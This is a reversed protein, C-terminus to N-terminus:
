MRKQVNMVLRVRVATPQTALLIAAMCVGYWPSMQRQANLDLLAFPANCVQPNQQISVIGTITCLM